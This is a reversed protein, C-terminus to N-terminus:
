NGKRVLLINATTAATATGTLTFNGSDTTWSGMATIYGPDAFEIRALVYDATIAADSISLIQQATGASVAASSFWLFGDQRAYTTNIQNGNVDNDARVGDASTATTPESVQLATFYSSINKYASRDSSLISYFLIFSPSRKHIYLTITETTQDVTYRIDSVSYGNKAWWRVTSTISGGSTHHFRCNLLGQYGNGGDTFFLLFKTTENDSLTFQMFQFWVGNTGDLRYTYRLNSAGVATGGSALAGVDAATLTRDQTLDYGNITRSTPVRSTDSPHVHDARSAENFTGPSATDADMLPNQNSLIDNGFGDINTACLIFSNSADGLSVVLVQDGAAAWTALGPPCRLTMSQADYPRIVTLTGDGNNSAVKAKYGDLSHKLLDSIVRQRMYREWLQKAFEAMGETDSRGNHQAM